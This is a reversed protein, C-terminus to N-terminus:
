LSASKKDAEEKALRVVIRDLGFARRMESAATKLVTEIDLTERM